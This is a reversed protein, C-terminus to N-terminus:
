SWGRRRASPTRLSRLTFLASPLSANLGLTCLLTDRPMPLPPHPTTPRAKLFLLQNAFVGSFGLAACWRLLHRPPPPAAAVVSGGGCGAAQQAAHAAALCALAILDRAACFVYM